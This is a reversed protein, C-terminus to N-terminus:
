PKEEAPAALGVAAADAVLSGLIADRKEVPLGAWADVVQQLEPDLPEGKGAEPPAPPAADQAAMWETLRTTFEDAKLGAEWTLCVMGERYSAYFELGDKGERPVGNVHCTTGDGAKVTLGELDDRPVKTEMPIYEAGAM